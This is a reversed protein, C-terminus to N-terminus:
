KAQEWDANMRKAEADLEPFEHVANNIRVQHPMKGQKVKLAHEKALVRKRVDGWHGGHKGFGRRLENSKEELERHRDPSATLMEVEIRFQDEAADRVEKGRNYQLKRIEKDLGGSQTAYRSRMGFAVEAIDSIPHKYERGPGGRRDVVQKTRLMEVTAAGRNIGVYAPVMYLLMSKVAKDWSYEKIAPDENPNISQWMSTMLDYFPTQTIPIDRGMRLNAAGPFGSWAGTDTGVQWALRNMHGTIAMYQYFAMPQTKMWKAWIEGVMYPYSTFQTLLRSAPNRSLAPAMNLSGYVFNIHESFNVGHQLIGDWKGADMAERVTKFGMKGMQDAIGVHATLGRNIFETSSGLTMMAKDIRALVQSSSGHGVMFPALSDTIDMMREFEKSLSLDKTLNFGEKREFAAAQDARISPVVQTGEPSIRRM